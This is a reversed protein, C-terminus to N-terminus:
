RPKSLKEMDPFAELVSTYSRMLAGGAKKNSLADLVIKPGKKYGWPQILSGHYQGVRSDLVEKVASNAAKMYIRANDLMGHKRLVDFLLSSVEPEKVHLLLKLDHTRSFELIESLSPVREGEFEPRFWSGADYQKIEAFTLENVRGKGNTTRDLTEDHVVVIQGDKTVRLDIEAYKAGLEVSKKLAALTNEPGDLDGGAHVVWIPRSWPEQIGMDEGTGGVGRCPSEQKLHFDGKEADVFLPEKSINGAGSPTSFGNNWFNSYTFVFKNPSGMSSVDTIISNTITNGSEAGAVYLLSKPGRIVCNKIRNNTSSAGERHTNKLSIGIERADIICNEFFNDQQIAPPNEEKPIEEGTDYILIGNKVGITRCNIFKNRYSGDRVFLGGSWGHVKHEDDDYVICDRFENDHSFHAVGIAEGHGRAVCNIVKNNYNKYKLIIGHGSHVKVLPHKNQTLCNRIINDHSYGVAIYYDVANDTTIGYSTCNEILNFNSHWIQFNAARADTVSCNRLICHHSSQLYIGWGDYGSKTGPGCGLDTVTINELIVHEVGTLLVGWQYRTVKINSLEIYKSSEVVIGKGTRDQGDLVPIGEYGEFVIPNEQTGSNKIVVHEPGYDGVKIKVTDGAKAKEAAYTITRWAQVESLGANADSGLTSVYYIAAEAPEGALYSFLIMIGIVAALVKPTRTIETM